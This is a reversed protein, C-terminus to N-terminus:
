TIPRGHERASRISRVKLALAIDLNRYDPIVGCSRGVSGGDQNQERRMSLGPALIAPRM